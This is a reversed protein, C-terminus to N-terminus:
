RGTQGTHWHRGRPLTNGKKTQVNWVLRKREHVHPGRGDAGDRKRRRGLGAVGGGGDHIGDTGVAGSPV